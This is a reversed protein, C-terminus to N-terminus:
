PAEEEDEEGEGVLQDLNAIIKRLLARLTEEEERTLGHVMGGRLEAALSRLPGIREKGLQSLRLRLRRRDGADGESRVLKRALLATVARSTTPVDMRLREAIESLSAGDAEDINIFVWFQQSTLGYQRVRETVARKMRRRAAGILLSVPEKSLTSKAYV